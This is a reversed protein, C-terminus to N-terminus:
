RKRKQEEKDKRKNSQGRERLGAEKSKNITFNKDKKTVTMPRGIYKAVISLQAIVFAIIFAFVLDLLIVILNIYWIQLASGFIFMAILYGVVTFVAWLIVILSLMRMWNRKSEETRFMGM